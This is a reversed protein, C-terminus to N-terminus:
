NNNKEMQKEFSIISSQVRGKAVPDEISNSWNEMQDFSWDRFKYKGHEELWSNMKEKQDSEQSNKIIDLMQLLPKADPENKLYDKALDRYDSDDQGTIMSLEINNILSNKAYLPIEQSNKGRYKEIITDLITMAENNNKGMLDFSKSIMLEEIQEKIILSTNDKYKQILEDQLDNKADTDLLAAKYLSTQILLSQYEEDDSNSLKTIAKDYETIASSPDTISYISAIAFHAIVSYLFVDKNKSDQSKKIIEKYLRIAEDPKNNFLAEKAEAGLADLEETSAQYITQNKDKISKNLDITPAEPEPSTVNALKAEPPIGIAISKSINLDPKQEDPIDKNIYSYTWLVFLASLAMTSKKM